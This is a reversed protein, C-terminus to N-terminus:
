FHTLNTLHALPIPQDLHGTLLNMFCKPEYTAVEHLWRTNISNISRINSNLIDLELNIYM